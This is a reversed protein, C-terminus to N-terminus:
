ECAPGLGGNAGGLDEDLGAALASQMLGHPSIRICTKGREGRVTEREAQPGVM